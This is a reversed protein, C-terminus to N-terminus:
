TEEKKVSKNQKAKTRKISGHEKKAKPNSSQVGSPKTKEKTEEEEEEEKKQM